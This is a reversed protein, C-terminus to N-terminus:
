DELIGGEEYLLFLVEYKFYSSIRTEGRFVRIEGGGRYSSM